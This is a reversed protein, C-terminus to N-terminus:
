LGITPLPVGLWVGFVVYFAGAMLVAALANGIVGRFRLYTLFGFVFMLTAVLYGTLTFLACYLAIILATLWARGESRVDATAEARDVTRLDRLESAAYLFSFVLFAGGVVQPFLRPGLEDGIPPMRIGFATYVYFAGGACLLVALILRVVVAASWIAPDVRETSPTETSM